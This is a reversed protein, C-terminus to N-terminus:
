LLNAFEAASLHAQRLISALTGKPIDHGGHVPVITRRGDPHALKLHSGRVSIQQFGASVLAKAVERGTVSPLAPIM